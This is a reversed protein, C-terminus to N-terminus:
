PRPVRVFAAAMKKFEALDMGQGTLAYAHDTGPFAYISYAARANTLFVGGKLDGFMATGLDEDHPSCVAPSTTCFRGEDLKLAATGPGTYAVGVFDTGRVEKGTVLWGAPLASSCYVDFAVTSAAGAFFAKDPV